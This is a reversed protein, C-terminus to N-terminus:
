IQRLNNVNSLRDFSVNCLREFDVDFGTYKFIEKYFGFLNSDGLSLISITIKPGKLQKGFIKM